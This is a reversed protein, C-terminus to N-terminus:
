EAVEIEIFTPLPIGKSCPKITFVSETFHSSKNEIFATSCTSKDVVTEDHITVGNQVIKFGALESFQNNNDAMDYGGKKFSYNLTEIYRYLDTNKENARSKLNKFETSPNYVALPNRHPRASSIPNNPQYNYYPDKRVSNKSHKYVNQQKSTNLFSRKTEQKSTLRQSSTGKSQYRM